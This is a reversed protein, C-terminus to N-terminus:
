VHWVLRSLVGKRRTAAKSFPFSKRWSPIWFYSLSKIWFPHPDEQVPRTGPCTRFLRKPWASCGALHEAVASLPRRPRWGSKASVSWCNNASPAGWAARTARAGSRHPPALPTSHAYPEQLGSPIKCARYLNLPAFLKQFTQYFPLTSTTAQGHWLTAWTMHRITIILHLKVM